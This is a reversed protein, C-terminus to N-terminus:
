LAYEWTRIFQFKAQQALYPQLLPQIVIGLHRVASVLM